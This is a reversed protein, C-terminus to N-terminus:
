LLVTSQLLASNPFCKNAKSNQSTRIQPVPTLQLTFLEFVEKEKELLFSHARQSARTTPQAGTPSHKPTRPQLPATHLRFCSSGLPWQLQRTDRCATIGVMIHKLISTQSMSWLFHMACFHPTWSSSSVLVQEPLLQSVSNGSM